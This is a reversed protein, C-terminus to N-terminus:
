SPDVPRATEEEIVSIWVGGIIDSVLNFVLTAVVSGVVSGLALILGVLGYQRFIFNADFEWNAFGLSDMLEEINDITGASDAISWTVLAAIMFMIWLCLFFIISLKMVSWPDVHRILRRVRRAEFQQVKGSVSRKSVVHRGGEESAPPAVDSRRDRAGRRLRPADGVDDTDDASADDDQEVLDTESSDDPDPEDLDDEPAPAPRPAYASSPAESPAVVDTPATEPDVAM